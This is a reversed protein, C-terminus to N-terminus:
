SWLDHPTPRLQRELLQLVARLQGILAITRQAEALTFAPPRLRGLRPMVEEAYSQAELIRYTSPEELAAHGLALAKELSRRLSQADTMPEETHM